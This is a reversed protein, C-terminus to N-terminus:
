PPRTCRGYRFDCGAYAAPISIGAKERHDSDGGPRLGCLSRPNFDFLRSTVFGTDHDCGAYAAPISITHHAPAAGVILDCGAYAAPISILHVLFDALGVLLRLGYLSRPNFNRGSRLGTTQRRDCGTYAAPISDLGVVVNPTDDTTEM